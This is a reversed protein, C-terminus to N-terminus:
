GVIVIRYHQMTDITRQVFLLRLYKFVNGNFQTNLYPLMFINLSNSFKLKKRISGSPNYYRNYILRYCFIHKQQSFFATINKCFIKLSRSLFCRQLRLTM